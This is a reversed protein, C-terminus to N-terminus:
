ALAIEHCCLRVIPTVGGWDEFSIANTPANLESCLEHRSLLPLREICLATSCSRCNYLWSNLLLHMLSFFVGPGGESRSSRIQRVKLAGHTGNPLWHLSAGKCQWPDSSIAAAVM